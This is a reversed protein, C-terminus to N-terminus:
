FLLMVSCEQIEFFSKELSWLPHHTKSPRIAPVRTCCFLVHFLMKGKATEMTGVAIYEVASAHDWCLTGDVVALTNRISICM